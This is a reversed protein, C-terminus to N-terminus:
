LGEICSWLGFQCGRAACAAVAARGATNMGSLWQTCERLEGGCQRVITQCMAQAAPESCANQLAQDGCRYTECGDQLQQGNQAVVCAVALQALRPKFYRKYSECKTCIFDFSGCGGPLRVAGCNGPRGVDDKCVAPKATASPTARCGAWGNPDAPASLGEHIPSGPTTPPEGRGARPEATATPPEAVLVTGPDAEPRPQPDPAAVVVTAVGTSAPEQRGGCGAAIASVLLLFRQRDIQVM